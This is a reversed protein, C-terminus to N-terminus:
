VKKNYELIKNLGLLVLNREFYVEHHLYPMISTAHGGTLLVACEGKQQQLAHIYGEIEYAVGRVVGAMMADVTNCGILPIDKTDDFQLKPLRKTQQHLATLRMRIGPAINGGVFTNDASVFDYTIASGIDVIVLNKNPILTNAGVAAALRDQGLTQPTQYANHLPLPTTSSFALTSLSVELDLWQPFTAVSSVICHTIPYHKRLLQFDHRAFDQYVFTDVLNQAEDFIGIKTKSNGIDIALNM